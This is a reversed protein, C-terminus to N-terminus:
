RLAFVLIEVNRTSPMIVLGLQDRLQELFNNAAGENREAHFRFEGQLNTEDVVPRDLEGELMHCFEEATGDISISSLSNVSLPKMGDLAEDPDGAIEYEMSMSTAGSSSGTGEESEIKFRPPKRGPVATVVYAEVVRDEREATLHFYDLIGEEFRTKIKESDEPEPLVMAFDYRRGDGLVGPLVVRVPNVDYLHQIAAKLTYGRLSLFDPGSYNGSGQSGSISVHLAYSPPLKPKYDEPGPMRPPEANLVVQGSELFAKMTARTPRTTTIRGELAAKVESEQPPFGMNGFGLIKGDAGIFVTAPEELGYARGSDGDPDHFVWGKIPHQNLWPLLTRDEEGSIFLFQVQQGAFADVLSNWKTITELNESTNLYFVLITLQGTLKSQNWQAERPTSLVKAFRIDPAQDGAKLYVTVPGYLSIQGFAGPIALAFFPLLFRTIM